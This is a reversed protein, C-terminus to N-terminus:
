SFDSGEMTNSDEPPHFADGFASDDLVDMGLDEDDGYDGLGNDGVGMGVNDFDGQSGTREVGFDPTDATAQSLTSEHMNQPLNHIGSAPTNVFTAPSGSTDGQQPTPSTQPKTDVDTPNGSDDGQEDVMVWENGTNGDDELGQDLDELGTIEMDVDMDDLSPVAVDEQHTFEEPGLESGNNDAGDDNRVTPTGVVASPTQPSHSPESPEHQGEGDVPQVPQDM